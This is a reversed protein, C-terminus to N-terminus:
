QSEYLYDAIPEDWEDTAAEPNLLVSRQQLGKPLRRAVRSPIGDGYFLHGQGVLVIVPDAPNAKLFNAITEAMTEDWLVQAMFFNEFGNSVSHGQHIQEYVAQVRQQYAANSLDIESAPPIQEREAATLGELGVQAVRRTIETPTNLALVPLQNAKAFQLIPSYYEWPFGWRQDYQSQQRLETESIEGALYQDLAPQFPRQFMEMGIAAQPRVQSLAQITQLQVKHDEARDHTEGLYVVSSQALDALVTESALVAGTSSRWPSPDPAQAIAPVAWLLLGLSWALLKLIKKM